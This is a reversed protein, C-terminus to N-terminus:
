YILINLVRCYKENKPSDFAAYGTEGHGDQQGSGKQTGGVVRGVIGGVIVFATVALV